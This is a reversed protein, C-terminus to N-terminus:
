ATDRITYTELSDEGLSFYNKYEKCMTVVLYLATSGNEKRRNRFETFDPNSKRMFKLPRAYILPSLLLRPHPISKKKNVPDTMSQMNILMLAM